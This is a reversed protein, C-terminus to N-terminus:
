PPEAPSHCKSRIASLEEESPSGYSTLGNAGRKALFDSLENELIGAHGPVWFLSVTTLSKLNAIGKLLEEVLLFNSKAIWKGEAINKAYLNDLFLHVPRPPRRHSRSVIMTVHSTALSLAKLEAANNSAKNLFTSSHYTPGNEPSIIAYGAGARPNDDRFSSGDTFVRYADKPLAKLLVLFERKEKARNRKAKPKNASDLLKLFTSAMLQAVADQDPPVAQHAV